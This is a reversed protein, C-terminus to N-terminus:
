TGPVRGDRLYTGRGTIWPGCYLDPDAGTPVCNCASGAVSFVDLGHDITLVLIELSGDGDIDAITPAACPGVGNGSDPNQGPLKLDHLPEGNSALIVLRGSESGPEGYVGFVVEPRGDGSLDAVTLETAYALALGGAYDHRWLLSADPAFAYVFGDASPILIEPRTDGEIDALTPAPVVSPPYWDDNYLPEETLPLEEWGALRRASRHDTAAYDGELVMVAHHYTHYPEDMEVNPSGIVENLGDGSIDGISPPSQTWQLWMTWGPHPWEGTHLHYHDDEVEPDLWRIFQGWSMPEGECEDGRRTFYSPDALLTTGDPNFAQIHHNDYTVLIELDDDDDINGVGTNLGYSGYGSHGYCNADPGGPLDTGVGVRTDYRPWGPRLSGDAQFVFVHPNTGEYGAPEESRTSSVVIEISGDGDLDGASLSRNEFCSDAICTTAPWGDKIALEAGTWEYAAVTGEGAAVVIETTGDGDLDAVVAPAYVRGEHHEGASAVGLLEGGASWVAVDYFPAVIEKEGDGDLDVVAPSSFWGTNGISLNRVFDPEAVSASGGVDECTPNFKKKDGDGCGAFLAALALALLSVRNDHPVPKM